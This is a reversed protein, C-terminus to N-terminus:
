QRKYRGILQGQSLIHEEMASLLSTKDEVSSEDLEKDLAYIKFYYRHIGSPPCPGGYGIKGFSTSAQCAGNELKETVPINEELKNTDPPLNYLVWHVFTGMPADPDDCVLAISKTGEPINEWALPPSINDGDCTYKVPIMGGDEFASSTLKIDMTEGGNESNEIEEKECACLLLLPLVTFACIVRKM